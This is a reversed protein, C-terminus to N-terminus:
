ASYLGFKTNLAEFQQISNNAGRLYLDVGKYPIPQLRTGLHEGGDCYPVFVKSWDHFVPNEEPRGSLIGQGSFDRTPPYKASSGLGTKSRLYCSELTDALNAGTCLGGGQFFIMFKNKNIDSGESYYLAAPSGDLCRAGSEIPHKILTYNSSCSAIALIALVITLQQLTM